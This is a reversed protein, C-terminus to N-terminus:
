GEESGGDKEVEMEDRITFDGEKELMNIVARNFFDTLTVDQKKVHEQVRQLLIDSLMITTRSNSM